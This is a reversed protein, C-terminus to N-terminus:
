TAFRVNIIDGDLVVYEKGELRLEGHEKCAHLSGRGVLHDYSVVEARIFGRSLDTHIEGAAAQAMTGRPISWARCEDEGATLFSILGLAEYMKKVAVDLVPEGIGMAELFFYAGPELLAMLLVQAYGKRDMAGAKLWPSLAYFLGSAFTFRLFILQAPTYGELGLKTGVFSAGFLVSMITMAAVPGFRERSM